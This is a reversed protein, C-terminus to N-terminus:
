TSSSAVNFDRATKEVAYGKRRNWIKWLGDIGMALFIILAPELPLRYKAYGIPGNVILFYIATVFLFVVMPRIESNRLGQLFGRFQVLRSLLLTLQAGFWVAIFGGNTISQFLKKLRELFNGGPITSFFPTNLQLQQGIERFSTLLFGRSAGVVLGFTIQRFSLSTIQEMGIERLIRDQALPNGAEEPPLEALKKSAIARNQRQIAQMNSCDIPDKLCPYVFNMLHAGSQTSFVPAGYLTYTTILRPTAFLGMILIPVCALLFTRWFSRTSRTVLYCLAPLLFIPFFQLVPRTMLALGFLIGAAVLCLLTRESRAAWLSACLGWAFFMVFLTDTLVIAAYVVFTPWLCGLIATPWTLRRDIARAALATGLVTLSDIIAQVATIALSHVGGGLWMLSALFYPYIPMREIVPMQEENVLLSRAIHMYVGSDPMTFSGDLFFVIAQYALRVAAAGALLLIIQRPKM